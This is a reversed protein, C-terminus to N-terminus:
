SWPSGSEPLIVDVLTTNLAPHLPVTYRSIRDKYRNQSRMSCPPSLPEIRFHQYGSIWSFEDLSIPPHHVFPVCTRRLAINFGWAQTYISGLRTLHQRTFTNRAESNGLGSMSHAGHVFGAGHGPHNRDNPFGFGLAVGARCQRSHFGHQNVSCFRNNGILGCNWDGRVLRGGLNRLQMNGSSWHRGRRRSHNRCNRGTGPWCRLRGVRRFRRLRGSIPHVGRFRPWNRHWDVRFARTDYVASSAFSGGTWGLWCRPHCGIRHTRGGSRLRWNRIRPSTGPFGSGRTIEM